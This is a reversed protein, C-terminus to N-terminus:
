KKNFIEDRSQQQIARLTQHLVERARDETLADRLCFSSGVKRVTITAPQSRTRYNLMVHANQVQGIDVVEITEVKGVATSLPKPQRFHSLEKRLGAETAVPCM